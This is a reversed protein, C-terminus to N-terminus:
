CPKSITIVHDFLGYVYKAMGDWNTTVTTDGCPYKDSPSTMDECRQLTYGEPMTGGTMNSLENDSLAEFCKNNLKELSKM